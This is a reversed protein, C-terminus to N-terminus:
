GKLLHQAVQVFIFDKKKKGRTLVKKFTVHKSPSEEALEVRLRGTIPQTVQSDFDIRNSFFLSLSCLVADPQCYGGTPTVGRSRCHM